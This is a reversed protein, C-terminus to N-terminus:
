RRDEQIASFSLGGDPYQWWASRLGAEVLVRVDQSVSFAGDSVTLRFVLTAPESPALFIAYLTEEGFLLVPPGEIQDWRYRLVEGDPDSSEFASLLVIQNPAVIQDPNTVAQPPRNTRVYIRLDKSVSDFDTRAIFRVILPEDPKSVHSENPTFTFVQVAEGQRWVSEFSANDPLWNAILRIPVPVGHSQVWVQLTQGLRMTCTLTGDFETSCFAWPSFLDLDLQVSRMQAETSLQALALFTGFVLLVWLSKM